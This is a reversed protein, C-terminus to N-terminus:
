VGQTNRGAPQKEQVLGTVIGECLAHPSRVLIGQRGSPGTNLAVSAGGSGVGAQEENATPRGM